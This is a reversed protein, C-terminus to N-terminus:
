TTYDLEPLPIWGMRPSMRCSTLFGSLDGSCVPNSIVPDWICKMHLKAVMDYKCTDECRDIYVDIYFIVSGLALSYVRKM